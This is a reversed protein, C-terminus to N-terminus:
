LVMYESKRPKPAYYLVHLLKEKSEKIINNKISEHDGENENTLIANKGMPCKYSSSSIVLQLKKLVINALYFKADIFHSEAETFPKDDAVVKKMVSNQM